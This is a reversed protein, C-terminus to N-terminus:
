KVYSVKWLFWVNASGLYSIEVRITIDRCNFYYSFLKSGFIIQDPFSYKIFLFLGLNGLHKRRDQIEM